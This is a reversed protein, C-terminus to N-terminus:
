SRKKIVQVGNLNGFNGKFCEEIQDLTLMMAESVVKGLVHGEDEFLNVSYSSAVCDTFDKVHSM